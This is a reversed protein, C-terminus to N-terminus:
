AAIARPEIARQHDEVPAPDAVDGTESGFALDDGEVRVPWHASRRNGSEGGLRRRRRPRRARASRVRRRAWVRCSSAAVGIEVPRRRFREVAVMESRKRGAISPKLSASPAAVSLAKVTSAVAAATFGHERRAARQSTLPPPRRM